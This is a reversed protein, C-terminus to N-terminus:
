ICVIKIHHINGNSAKLYDVTSIRVNAEVNDQSFTIMNDVIAYAKINGVNSSKNMDYWIEYRANNDMGYSTGTYQSRTRVRVNNFDQSDGTTQDTITISNSLLYDRIPRAM